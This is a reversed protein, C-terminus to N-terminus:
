LLFPGNLTQRVQWRAFSRSYASAFFALAAYIEKKWGSPLGFAVEVVSVVGEGAECASDSNLACSRPPTSPDIDPLRGFKEWNMLPPEAVFGKGPPMSVPASRAAILWGPAKVLLEVEVPSDIGPEGEVSESTILTAISPPSRFLASPPAGPLAM